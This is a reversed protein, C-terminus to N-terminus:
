LQEPDESERQPPGIGAMAAAKMPNHFDARKRPRADQIAVEVLSAGFHNAPMIHRMEAFM